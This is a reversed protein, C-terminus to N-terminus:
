SNGPIAGDFNRVTWQSLMYMYVIVTIVGLVIGIIATTKGTNANNIGDYLDPNENHVAIAKKAQLLGIVGLYLAM